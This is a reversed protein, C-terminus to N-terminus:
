RKYIVLAYVIFSLLGCSILVNMILGIVAFEKRRDKPLLGAVGVAAGLGGLLAMGVFLLAEVTSFTSHLESKPQRSWYGALGFALCNGLIALIFIVFSAIGLGSQKSPVPEATGPYGESGHIM